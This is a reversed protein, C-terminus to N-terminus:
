QDVVRAFTSQIGLKEQFLKVLGQTQRNSTEFYQQVLLAKSVDPPHTRPRGPTKIQNEQNPQLRQWVRDVTRRIENLVDNIENIQAEDYSTWDIPQPTKDEYPFEGKQVQTILRKLLDRIGDGPM